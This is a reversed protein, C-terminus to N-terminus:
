CPRRNWGANRRSSSDPSWSPDGLFLDDNGERKRARCEQPPRRHSGGAACFALPVQEFEFPKASDCAGLWQSSGQKIGGFPTMVVVTTNELVEWCLVEGDPSPGGARIRFPLGLLKRAEDLRPKTV